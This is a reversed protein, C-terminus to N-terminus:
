ALRPHVDVTAQGLAPTDDPVRGRVPVGGLAVGAWTWLILETFNQQLPDLFAIVLFCVMIALLGLKWPRLEPPGASLAAGGLGWLVAVLWLSAGVLGLEVANSLYSDHLPLAVAESPYGTMPYNPAQRFYAPSQDVYRDWGVGFLPHAEVMRAGAATQNQRDWVSRQNNVRAATKKALAPSLALAGGITLTCALAGPVLWRRARGSALGAAVTGAIVAIWVGRELTVFCGLACVLMVAGAVYRRRGSWQSFAIAAATACSFLAFGEAVSSRFPGGARSGSLAEDSGVIYHPFVLAHPGLSEFIATLGLYAGLGVLTVLLMQRERAGHFIVPALLLMAFPILGLRDLLDFVGTKTTLTGAAAASGLAYFALVLLLLHVPRVRIAPRGKTGPSRLALALVVGIVLLRDPVFPFGPLGVSGWNGSFITLVIAACMTVAVPLEWLRCMAYVLVVLLGLSLALWHGHLLWGARAHVVALIALAIAVWVGLGPRWFASRPSTPGSPPPACVLEASSM